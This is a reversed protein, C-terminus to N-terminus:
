PKQVEELELYQGLSALRQGEEIDRVWVDVWRGNFNGIDCAYLLYPWGEIRFITGPPIITPDTAAMGPLTPCGYRTTGRDLYYTVRVIFRRGSRDSLERTTGEGDPVGGGPVPVAAPARDSIGGNGLEDQKVEKRHIRPRLYLPEVRLEPGQAVGLRGGLASDAGGAGRLVGRSYINTRTPKGNGRVIAVLEELKDRDPLPFPILGDIVLSLGMFFVAGIAALRDM